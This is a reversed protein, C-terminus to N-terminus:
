THAFLTESCQASPAAPRVEPLEFPIVRKGADVRADCPAGAPPVERVGQVPDPRLPMPVMRKGGHRVASQEDRQLQDMM